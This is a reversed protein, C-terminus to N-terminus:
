TRSKVAPYLKCMLLVEDQGDPDLVGLCYSELMGSEIYEKENM